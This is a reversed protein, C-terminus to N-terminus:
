RENNLTVQLHSNYYLIFNNLYYCKSMRTVSKTKKSLKRTAIYSRHKKYIHIYTHIYTYNYMYMYVYM